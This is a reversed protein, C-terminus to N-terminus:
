CSSQSPFLPLLSSSNDDSLGMAKGKISKSQGVYSVVQMKAIVMPNSKLKHSLSLPKPNPGNNIDMGNELWIEDSAGIEKLTGYGKQLM